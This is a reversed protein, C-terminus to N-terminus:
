VSFKEKEVIHASVENQIIKNEINEYHVLAKEAVIAEHIELIKKKKVIREQNRKKLNIKEKCENM